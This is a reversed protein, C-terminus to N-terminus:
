LCPDHSVHGQGGEPPMSLSSKRREMDMGDIADSADLAADIIADAEAVTYLRSVNNRLNVPYSELRERSVDRRRAINTAKDKPLNVKGRAITM